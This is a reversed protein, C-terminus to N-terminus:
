IKIINLQERIESMNKIGFEEFYYLQKKNKQLIKDLILNFFYSKEIRMSGVSNSSLRLNHWGFTNKITINSFYKDTEDTETCYILTTNGLSKINFADVFVSTKNQQFNSNKVTLLGFMESNKNESNVFINGKFIINNFTTYNKVIESQYVLFIKSANTNIVPSIIELTDPLKITPYHHNKFNTNPTTFSFIYIDSNITTTFKPEIIEVKGGLYPTDERVGLFIRAKGLVKPKNIKINNGSFQFAAAGEPANITVGDVLFNDTWHDDIGDSFFGNKITVDITNRGTYSHRCNTIEGNNITFKKSSYNAVGYGSGEKKFGDIIPSELITNYNILNEFAVSLNSTTNNKIKLNSFIINDRYNRIYAINNENEKQNGIIVVNLNQIKKPNSLQYEIINTKNIDYEYLSNGINEEKELLFENKYYPSNNKRNLLIESSNLFYAHNKKLFPLKKVKSINKHYNIKEGSKNRVFDIGADKHNSHIIVKAICLINVKCYIRNKIYIDKDIILDVDNENCYNFLAEVSEWNSSKVTKKNITERNQSYSYQSYFCIFLIIILRNYM